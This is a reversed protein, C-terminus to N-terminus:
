RLGNQKQIHRNNNGNKAFGSVGGKKFSTADREKRKESRRNEDEVKGAIAEVQLSGFKEETAGALRIESERVM